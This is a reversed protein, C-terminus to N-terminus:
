LCSTIIYHKVLINLLIPSEYAASSLHQMNMVFNHLHVAAQVALIM